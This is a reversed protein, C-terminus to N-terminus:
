LKILCFNEFHYCVSAHGVLLSLLTDSNSSPRKLVVIDYIGDEIFYSGLIVHSEFQLLRCINSYINRYVVAIRIIFYKSCCNSISTLYEEDINRKIINQNVLLVLDYKKTPLAEEVNVLNLDLHSTMIRGNSTFSYSPITPRILHYNRNEALIVDLNTGKMELYTYKEGNLKLIDYVFSQRCLGM